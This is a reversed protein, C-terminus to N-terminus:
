SHYDAGETEEYPDAQARLTAQLAVLRSSAHMSSGYGDDWTELRTQEAAWVNVAEMGAFQRDEIRLALVAMGLSQHLLAM